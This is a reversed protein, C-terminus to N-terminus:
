IPGDLMWEVSVRHEEILRVLAEYKSRQGQDLLGAEEAQVVRVLTEREIPWELIFDLRSDADWEPWEASQEPVSQWFRLLNDLDKDILRAPRRERIVHAM